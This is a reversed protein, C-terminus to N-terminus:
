GARWEMDGVFQPVGQWLQVLQPQIQCIWWRDNHNTGSLLLCVWCATARTNDWSTMGSVLTPRWILSVCVRVSCLCPGWQSVQMTTFCLYQSVKPPVRPYEPPFFFDFIFCGNSYPTDDPGTILAKWLFVNDEDVRVFISSSENM